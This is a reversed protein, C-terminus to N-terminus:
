RNKRFINNRKKKKNKLDTETVHFLFDKKMLAHLKVSVSAVNYLKDWFELPVSLNKWLPYHYM